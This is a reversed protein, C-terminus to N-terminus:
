QNFEVPFWIVLSDTSAILACWGGTVCFLIQPDSLCLCYAWVLELSSQLLHHIGVCASHKSLESGELSWATALCHTQVEQLIISLVPDILRKIRWHGRQLYSKDLSLIISAISAHPGWIKPNCIRHTERSYIRSWIIVFLFLFLFYFLFRVSAWFVEM